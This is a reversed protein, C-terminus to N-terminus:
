KNKKPKVYCASHLNDFDEDALITKKIQMMLRTLSNYLDTNKTTILVQNLAQNWDGIRFLNLLEDKNPVDKLKYALELYKQEVFSKPVFCQEFIRYYGTMPFHDDILDWMEQGKTLFKSDIEKLEKGKTDYERYEAADITKDKKSVYLYLDFTKSEEPISAGFYKKSYNSGKFNEKEM